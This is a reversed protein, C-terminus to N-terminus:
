QQAKPFGVGELAARISDVLRPDRYAFSDPIPLVYVEGRIKFREKVRKHNEPNVFVVEDAWDLLVQDVPILAYEDHSGASRTNRNYPPQCLLWAVTPSRLVGGSCVCLVRPYTGFDQYQNQAVGERWTEPM